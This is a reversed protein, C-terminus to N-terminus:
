NGRNENTEIEPSIGHREKCLVHEHEEHWQQNAIHGPDEMILINVPYMNLRNVWHNEM